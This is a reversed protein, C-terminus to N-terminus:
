PAAAAANEANGDGTPILYSVSPASVDVWRLTRTGGTNPVPFETFVVRRGDPLWAPQGQSQTSTTLRTVVRSAIEVVYVDTNGGARSSTLALAGGDPRWAPEVDAAASSAVSDPQGSGPVFHYVDAAGAATSMFALRSGSATWAPSAEISGSFGFGETAWQPNSGDGRAIWIKSVLAGDYAYALRSGDATISPSTENRTTSTLRTPTGGGTAVSWLDANGSRYSVFVVRGGGVAPDFDALPDSTVRELNEGDLDVRFIDRNGDVVRDFYVVPPRAVQVVHSGRHDGATATLTVAGTETFRLSDGGLLTAASAPSVALQWQGAPLEAGNRTVRVHAVGGREEFGSLSLSLTSAPPDVPGKDACGTILAGLACCLPRLLRM